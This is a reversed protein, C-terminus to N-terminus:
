VGGTKAILDRVARELLRDGQTIPPMNEGAEISGL